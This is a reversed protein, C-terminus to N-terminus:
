DNPSKNENVRGGDIHISNELSQLIHLQELTTRKQSLPPLNEWSFYAAQSTEHNIQFHGGLVECAFVLKYFQFTQPSNTQQTDFIALLSGVAVELGTEEFVELQINEIPSLGVEAFGGPLSWEKTLTDQVLLVHNNKSIVARVDVKPTAYGQESTFLDVISEIPHDSLQSMLTIAIRELEQYREQDFPDKGFTQGNQAIALIRQYLALVNM